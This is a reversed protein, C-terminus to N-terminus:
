WTIETPKNISTKLINYLNRKQADTFVGQAIRAIHFCDDPDNWDFPDRDLFHELEEDVGYDTLSYELLKGCDECHSCGDEEQDFGGDFFDGYDRHFDFDPKKKKICDLCYSAGTDEMLWYPMEAKAEREDLLPIAISIREHIEIKDLLKIEIPKGLSLHPQKAMM